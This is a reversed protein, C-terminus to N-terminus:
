RKRRFGAIGALGLGMLLMTGPEPVENGSLKTRFVLYEGYDAGGVLDGGWIWDAAADIGSVLAGTSGGWPYGGNPVSWAPDINLWSSTTTANSIYAALDTEEAVSWDGATDWPGSDNTAIFEWDTVNSYQTGFSSTFQGLWGQAVDDDSWGVVYVYQDNTMTFTTTEPTEWAYTDGAQVSDQVHLTLGSGDENGTYLAYHNDATLTADVQLAYVSGAGLLMGVTLILFGNVIKM